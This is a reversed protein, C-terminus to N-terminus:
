LEDATFTNGQNIDGTEYGKKFWRMRQESTGHTFADPVVRGQMQRQLNDDGIANAARLADEIEGPRLVHQENQAYHAWVGALFDAQLELRVSLRNSEVEGSQQRQRQIKESIGLLNQIHHGVEHAIVYAMASEGPAHFRESLERFFSLDIYVKSDGPCYFPGMAADGTGCATPTSGCFANLVPPQYTENMQTFQQTWVDETSALIKRSFSMLEKNKSDANECTTSGEVTPNVQQVANLVENPSRGTILAIIIAIIVAVGGGILKKGGGRGTGDEFNSSERYGDLDMTASNAEFIAGRHMFENNICM